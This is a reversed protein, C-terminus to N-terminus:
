QVRELINESLGLDKALERIDRLITTAREDCILQKSAKGHFAVAIFPPGGNGNRVVIMDRSCIVGGLDAVNKVNHVAAILDRAARGTSARAKATRDAEM